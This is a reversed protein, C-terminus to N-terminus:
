PCQAPPLAAPLAVPLVLVSAPQPGAVALVPGPPAARPPSSLWRPRSSSRLSVKSACSVALLGPILGPGAIAPRLSKDAAKAFIRFDYHIFRKHLGNKKARESSRARRLKRLPLGWGRLILDGGSLEPRSTEHFFPSSFPLVGPNSGLSSSGNQDNEPLQGLVNM